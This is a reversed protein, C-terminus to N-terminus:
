PSEKIVMLYVNLTSVNFSLEILSKSKMGLPIHSTVNVALITIHRELM